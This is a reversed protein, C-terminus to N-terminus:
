REDLSVDVIRWCLCDSDHLTPATGSVRRPSIGGCIGESFVLTHFYASPHDHVMLADRERERARKMKEREGACV